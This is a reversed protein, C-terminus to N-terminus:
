KLLMVNEIIQFQQWQLEKVQLFIGVTIFIMIGGPDILSLIVLRKNNHKFYFNDFSQSTGHVYTLEDFENLGKINNNQSNNIWIHFKELFLPHLNREYLYDTSDKVSKQVFEYIESDPIPRGAKHLKQLM